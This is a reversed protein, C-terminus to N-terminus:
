YDQTARELHNYVAVTRARIMNVRESANITQQMTGGGSYEDKSITGILKWENDRFSIWSKQANILIAKDAPKLIALLKKYYKNLLSDYADALNYTVNTMAATSYDYNIYKGQYNEIRFTDLAFEIALASEKKKTLKAKLQAAEQVIEQRIKKEIAETVEVPYKIDQAYSTFRLLLMAAMLIFKVSM